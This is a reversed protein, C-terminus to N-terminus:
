GIIPTPPHFISHGVKVKVPTIQTLYWFAVEVGDKFWALHGHGRGKM